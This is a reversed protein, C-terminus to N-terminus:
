VWQLFCFIWHNASCSTVQAIRLFLCYGVPGGGPARGFMLFGSEKTSATDFWEKVVELVKRQVQPVPPFIIHGAYVTRRQPHMRQVFETVIGFNSGGGRIGFFLDPNETDSAKVIEGSALVM